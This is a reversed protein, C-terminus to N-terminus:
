RPVLNDLAVTRAQGVVEALRVLDDHLDDIGYHDTAFRRLSAALRDRDTLLWDAIFDLAGILDVADVLDLHIGHETM